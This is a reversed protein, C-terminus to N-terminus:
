LNSDERTRWVYGWLPLSFAQKHLSKKHQINKPVGRLIVKSLRRQIFEAVEGRRLNGRSKVGPSIGGRGDM